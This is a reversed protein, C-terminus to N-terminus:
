MCDLGTALKSSKAHWACRSMGTGVKVMKVVETQQEGNRDTHRVYAKVEANKPIEEFANEVSHTREFDFKDDRHSPLFESTPEAAESSSDSTPWFWPLRM